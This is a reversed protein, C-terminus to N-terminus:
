GRARSVRKASASKEVAISNAKLSSACDSCLVLSLGLLTIRTRTGPASREEAAMTLLLLGEKSCLSCVPWEGGTEIRALELSLPEVGNALCSSLTSRCMKTAQDWDPEDMLTWM